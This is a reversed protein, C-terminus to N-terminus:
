PRYGTVKSRLICGSVKDIYLELYPQGLWAGKEDVVFLDLQERRVDVGNTPEATLWAWVLPSSTSIADTNTTNSTLSKVIYDFGGDQQKIHRKM